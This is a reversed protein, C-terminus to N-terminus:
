LTDKLKKVVWPHGVLIEEFQIPHITSKKGRYEPPLLDSFRSVYEEIYEEIEDWSKGNLYKRVIWSIQEKPVNEAISKAFRKLVGYVGGDTGYIMSDWIYWSPDIPRAPDRGLGKDIYTHCISEVLQKSYSNVSSGQTAILVHRAFELLFTQCELPTKFETKSVEFTELALDVNKEFEYILVEVNMLKLLEDLQTTM